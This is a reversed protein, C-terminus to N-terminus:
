HLLGEKIFKQLNLFSSGHLAAAEEAKRKWELANRKMEKGKDGDMMERVLLEVEDRKVNNDIEMGMGWEVCSYRCNTQQEAFFPWCIVPVGGVVSELTSNWGAHTLFGGVAPHSLVQEQPCWSVLMSRDKTEEVFEAPLMALEGAVIDPRIIWLFPKKTNALGWAFETMQDATMVTISGFNVYVVSQPAMTHLWEICEVEERWLSSTFPKLTDDRIHNMMLQLPGVTHVNPFRASLASLSDHELADFTNLILAKARPIAAAEQILFQLMTDERNTTRIFSPIDRLRMNKMGPIWDIRTELYGNTVQSMDQLPTYGKEVLDKYHVYALLGCASTTWFLVESLGFREAAKLTFSMVGDSVICSVPPVGAGSGNLKAILDCFPELCTTTTSVCLSPIDQTADADSPPLGDPITEFRFDPLGAVAAPGRSNILRRHNYETNVFTVFVGNHHLLKALKLMPNVHGQAPYPICVAHPRSEIKSISGM